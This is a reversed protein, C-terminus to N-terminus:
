EAGYKCTNGIVAQPGSICSMLGITINKKSAAYAKSNCVFVGLSAVMLVTLGLVAIKGLFARNEM